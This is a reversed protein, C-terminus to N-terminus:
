LESKIIKEINKFETYPIRILKIGNRICYETKIKDNIKLREFEVQSNWRPEFHQIGDYEIVTNHDPLHFDFKLIHKSKCDKFSHQEIYEINMKDLLERIVTEGISTIKSCKPCSINGTLHQHPAQSFSLNHKKCTLVVKTRNNTYNVKSYDFSDYGFKEISRKKFLDFGMKQLNKGNEIACRKCIHGHMLDSLKVITEGHTPCILKIRDHVKNSMSIDYTYGYKSLYLDNLRQLIEEHTLKKSM